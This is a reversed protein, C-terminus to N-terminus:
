PESRTCVLLVLTHTAQIMELKSVSGDRKRTDNEEKTRHGKCEVVTASGHPCHPLERDVKQCYAQPV